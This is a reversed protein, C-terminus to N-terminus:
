NLLDPREKLLRVAHYLPSQFYTRFTHENINDKGNFVESQTIFLNIESDSVPANFTKVVHEFDEKHIVPSGRRFLQFVFGIETNASKEAIKM